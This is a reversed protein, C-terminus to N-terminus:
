SMMEEIKEIVWIGMKRQVDERQAGLHQSLLINVGKDDNVLRRVNEVDAQEIPDIFLGRLKKEELTAVAENLDILAFRGVNLIYPCKHSVNNFFEKDFFSLTTRRLPLCIIHVDAVNMLEDPDRQPYESPVSPWSAFGLGACRPGILEACARGVPGAGWIAVSLDAVSEGVLTPKAWIGQRLLAAAEPIRRALMILAAYALEAVAGASLSPNHLLQIGRARLENTDINDLGSGARIVFRLRPLLDLLAKDIEIGSRVVVGIISKAAGGQLGKKVSDVILVRPDAILKQMVGKEFQCLLLVSEPM